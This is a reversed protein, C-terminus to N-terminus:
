KIRQVCQDIVREMGLTEIVDEALDESRLSQSVCFVMRKYLEVRNESFKSFAERIGENM